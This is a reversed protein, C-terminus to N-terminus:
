PINVYYVGSLFAGAHKHVKHSNGPGLLNMWMDKVYIKANGLNGAAHPTREAGEQWFAAVANEVEKQLPKLIKSTAAQLHLDAHSSWGGRVSKSVGVPNM